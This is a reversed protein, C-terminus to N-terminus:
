GYGDTSIQISAATVLNDNNTVDTDDYALIIFCSCQYSSTGKSGNCPNQDSRLLTVCLDRKRFIGKNISEM